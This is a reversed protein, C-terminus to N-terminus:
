SFHIALSICLLLRSSNLRNCSRYVTHTTDICMCICQATKKKEKGVSWATADAGFRVYGVGGEGEGVGACVIFSINIKTVCMMVSFYHVVLFFSIGPGTPRHTVKVFTSQM